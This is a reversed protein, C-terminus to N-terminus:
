WRRSSPERAACCRRQADRRYGRGSREDEFPIRLLNGRRGPRDPQGRRKEAGGAHSGEAIESHHSGRQEPVPQHAGTALDFYRTTGKESAYFSKEPTALVKSWWRPCRNGRASAAGAGDERRRHRGVSRLSGAGLRLGVAHRRDVDIITNAIEPIRRAAYLCTESLSTWVFRSAKDGGKGELAPAVIARIRERTDEIAKGAEISGFKAKQRARYEMKHWDLTLIESDGGKKIRKYFGSGTKEGLWGREIMAEILPPM